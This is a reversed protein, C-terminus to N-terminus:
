NCVQALAVWQEPSWQSTDTDAPLEVTIGSVDGGFFGGTASSSGRLCAFANDEPSVSLGEIAGSFQGCSSLFLVLCLVFRSM